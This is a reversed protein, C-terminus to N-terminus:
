ISWRLNRRRSPHWVGIRPCIIVTSRRGKGGDRQIRAIKEGAGPRAPSTTAGRGGRTGCLRDCGHAPQEFRAGARGIRAQWIQPENQEIERKLALNMEQAERATRGAHPAAADGAGTQARCRGIGPIDPPKRLYQNAGAVMAQQATLLTGYGTLMIVSVLPDIKRLEELARIGDMEPMRIDLVVVAYPRARLKELAEKAHEATDVSFDAALSFAIWERPGYEDDVVLVLPKDGFVPPTAAPSKETLMRAFSSPNLLVDPSDRHVHRHKCGVIQPTLARLLSQNTTM